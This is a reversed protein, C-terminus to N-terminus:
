GILKGAKELKEAVDELGLKQLCQRTQWSTRKDWGHLEYFRDLMEGWRYEDCKFGAHPGSKVPEEMYRRPPYDDKRDFDTHLTNFAKELNYGRLAVLMLEEETLDIGMAAKVQNVFDSITLGEAWYYQTPMMWCIGTM